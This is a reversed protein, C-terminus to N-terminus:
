DLPIGSGTNGPITGQSNQDIAARCRCRLNKGGGNLIIGAAQDDTLRAKAFTSHLAHDIEILDGFVALRLETFQLHSDRLKKRMLPPVVCSRPTVGSM